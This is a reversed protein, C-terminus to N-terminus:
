ANRDHADGLIPNLRFSTSLEEIRDNREKTYFIKRSILDNDDLKEQLFELDGLVLKDLHIFKIWKMLEHYRSEIADLGEYGPIEQNM